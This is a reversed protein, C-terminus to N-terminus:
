RLGAVREDTVAPLDHQEVPEARVVHQVEGRGARVERDAIEVRM